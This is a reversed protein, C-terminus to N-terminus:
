RGEREWDHDVFDEYVVCRDIDNFNEDQLDVHSIRLNDTNIDVSECQRYFDDLAKEAKTEETAFYILSATGDIWIKAENM